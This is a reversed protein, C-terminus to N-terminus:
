IRDPHTLQYESDFAEKRIRVDYYFTGLTLLYFPSWIMGVFTFSTTVDFAFLLARAHYPTM